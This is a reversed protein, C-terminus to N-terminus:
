VYTNVIQNRTSKFRALSPDTLILPSRTLDVLRFDGGMDKDRPWHRVCSPSKQTVDKGEGGIDYAENPKNKSKSM